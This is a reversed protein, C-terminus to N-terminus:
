WRAPRAALDPRRSLRTMTTTRPPPATPGAQRARARVRLGIGGRPVVKRVEIGVGVRLLNSVTAGFLRESSGSEFGRPTSRRSEGGTAPTSRGASDFPAAM